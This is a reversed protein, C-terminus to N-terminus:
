YDMKKIIKNLDDKYKKEVITYLVSTKNRIVIMYNEDTDVEFKKFEDKNVNQTSLTNKATKLRTENTEYVTQASKNDEFIYYEVKWKDDKMGITAEKINADDPMKNTMDYIAMGENKLINKFNDTTVVKKSCGSLIFSFCIILLLKSIKKM